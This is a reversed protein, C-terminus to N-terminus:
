LGRGPSSGSEIRNAALLELGLRQVRDLLSYLASQDVIPGFLLTEGGPEATIALGYFWERWLDDFHGKVRIAYLTEASAPVRAPRAQNAQENGTITNGKSSM